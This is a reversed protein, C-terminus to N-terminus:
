EVRVDGKVAPVDTKIEAEAMITGGQPYARQHVADLRHEVHVTANEFKQEAQRLTNLSQHKMKRATDEAALVTDEGAQRGREFEPTHTIQHLTRETFGTAAGAIYYVNVVARRALVEAGNLVSETTGMAFRAGSRIVHLTMRVPLFALDAAKASWDTTLRIVYTGLGVATGTATGAVGAAKNLVEPAKEAVAQGAGVTAGAAKYATDLGVSAMDKAAGVVESAMGVATGAAAGTVEAGKEYGRRAYEQGRGALQGAAEQAEAAAEGVSPIYMGSRHEKEPHAQVEVVGVVAPTTLVAATTGLAAGRAAASEVMTELEKASDYNTPPLNTQRATDVMGTIRDSTAAAM